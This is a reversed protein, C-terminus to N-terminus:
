IKNLHMALVYGMSFCAQLLYGGTPADWDLMEGIAFHNKMKKLEFSSDIENLDIGGVTSIAEDIPAASTIILPLQKIKLALTNPDTFEEKSLISKLLALQVANINFENELQKSLSKNGRNKLKDLVTTESLQPKLDIFIVAKSNKQLSERIVPSLAYIANGEIGFRTIVLEGKKESANCKVSINKLSKGEAIELFTNSWDLQYSCNSAHFPNIKIGSHKLHSIWNGDSGTIKWSSGGLAFVTLDPQYTSMKGKNDFILAHDATWGKWEHETNITVKKQELINLFANLVTIPKIGKLPFIRKSTGTYTKIGNHQLWAQLDVNSFNQLIPSFFAAPTYRHIMQSCDESHTLNFGGKGAVLFKRGMAFNREYIAVNFKKTDLTAALMLSSAGGGIIAISKKMPDFISLFFYILIIIIFRM